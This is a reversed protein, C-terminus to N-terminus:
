DKSVNLRKRGRMTTLKTSNWSNATLWSNVNRAARTKLLDMLSKKTRIELTGAFLAQLLYGDM